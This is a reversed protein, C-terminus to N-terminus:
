LRSMEQLFGVRRRYIDTLRTALAANSPDRELAARAENIAEDILSLNDEVIQVTEPALQDRRTDLSRLLDDTVKQYASEATEFEQWAITM